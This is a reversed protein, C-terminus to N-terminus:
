SVSGPFSVAKDLEQQEKLEVKELISGYKKVDQNLCEKWGDVLMELKKLQDKDTWIGGCEPV